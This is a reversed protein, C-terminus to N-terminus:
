PGSLIADRVQGAWGRIRQWDRFDGTRPRFIRLQLQERIGVIAPNVAGAFLAVDRPVVTPAMQHLRRLLRLTHRASAHPGDPVRIGLAFFWVPRRELLREHRGVWRCAATLWRRSYVPAGVVVADYPAPDAVESARRVEVTIGGDRLVDAVADAVEATSGFRTEYAILVRAV